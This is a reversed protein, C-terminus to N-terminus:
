RTAELEFPRTTGLIYGELRTLVLQQDGIASWCENLEKDDEHVILV